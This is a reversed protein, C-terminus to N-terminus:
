GEPNARNPGTLRGSDEASGGLLELRELLIARWFMAGPLDQRQLAEHYAEFVERASAKVVWSM